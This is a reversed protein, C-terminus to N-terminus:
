NEGNRGLGPALWGFPGGLALFHPFILAANNKSLNNKGMGARKRARGTPSGGPRAPLSFFAPLFFFVVYSHDCNKGM